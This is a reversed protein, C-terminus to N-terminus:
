LGLYEGGGKDFAFTARGGQHWQETPTWAIRTCRYTPKSANQGQGQLGINLCRFPHQMRLLRQQPVMVESPHEKSKSPSTESNAEDRTVHVRDFAVNRLSVVVCLDVAKLDKEFAHSFPSTWEFISSIFKSEVPIMM